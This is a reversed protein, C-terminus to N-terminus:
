LSVEELIRLGSAESGIEQPAGEIGSRTEDVGTQASPDYSPRRSRGRRIVLKFAYEVLTRFRSIVHSGVNSHIPSLLSNEVHIRETRQENLLARARARYLFTM